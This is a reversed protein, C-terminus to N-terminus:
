KLLFNKLDEYPKEKGIENYIEHRMGPYIIIEVDKVGLKKYMEYLKRPGKGMKGVPDNDGAVILLKEDKSINALNKKKYLTALGNFFGHFFSKTNKAGCYPDDLYAQVVKEDRSLWDAETKADKISKDFNGTSLSQLLPDLEYWNNDKCRINALFKALGYIKTPGNSGCIVVRDATNPHRELYSQVIFSGMSHGFLAVPLGTEKKLREINQNLGDVSKFFGERPWRELEEVSAANQGQGFADHVYVEIGFSNLYDALDSYRAATENMGTHGVLIMKPNECKWHCGKITEGTPIKIEFVEYDKMIM